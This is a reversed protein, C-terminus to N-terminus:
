ARFDSVAKGVARGETLARIRGTLATRLRLKTQDDLLISWSLPLYIATAVAVKAFFTGWNSPVPMLNIALCVGYFLGILLLWRVAVTRFFYGPTIGIWNMALLGLVVHFIIVVLFRAWVVGLIGWDFGLVFTLSAGIQLVGTALTWLAKLRVRNLGQYIPGILSFAVAVLSSSALIALVSYSIEFRPGMWLIIFERGFAIMGVFMLIGIVMALNNGQRFQVRLAAFDGRACDQVMKPNFISTCNTVVHRTKYLLMSGIVYYTVWQPGLLIAIVLTSAGSRLRTGVAGIFAWVSFGFLERMRRRSARWPRISLSPFVRRALVQVCLQGLVNGGFHIWALTLLGYGHVLAAITAVTRFALVVLDVANTLEFREHATLVQRFPSSLFGMWLNVAILVAVIRATPVLETPIKPFIWHLTAALLLGALLLLVGIAVIMAMGTSIIANVSRIDQKGLYFNIYRGIGARTGMEVLGLYGTMSVMLSWVGYNVEGLTHVVFPSMFFIVALNVSYGVWNATLNRAYIRARSM